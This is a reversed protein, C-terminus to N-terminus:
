RLWGTVGLVLKIILDVQAFGLFFIQRHTMNLAPLQQEEGNAKVWDKYAQSLVSLRTVECIVYCKLPSIYICWKVCWVDRKRGHSVECMMCWKKCMVKVLSWADSWLDSM